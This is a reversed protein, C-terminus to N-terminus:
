KLCYCGSVAHWCGGGWSVALSPAGDKFPKPDDLVTKLLDAYEPPTNWHAIGSVQYLNDFQAKYDNLDMLFRRNIKGFVSLQLGHGMSPPLVMVSVQPFKMKPSPNAGAARTDPKYHSATRILSLV